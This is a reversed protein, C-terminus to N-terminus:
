VGNCSSPHLFAKTILWTVGPSPVVALKDGICEAHVKIVHM